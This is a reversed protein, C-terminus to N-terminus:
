LRMHIYLEEAIRLDEETNIGLLENPNELAVVEQTAEAKALVRAISTLYYEQRPNDNDIKALWDWMGPSTLVQIGVNVEDIKKQAPTCASEEIIDVLAGHENRILRGYPPIPTTKCMLLTGAAGTEIHKTFMKQYTERCLFPMDCYCVLVPGCYNGFVSKACETAKATGNLTKQEVYHYRDGVSAMVKEKLFGVVIATDEPPIFSLQDLVYHILPKGRLLRLAKPLDSAESQLRTGKGAALVIAKM